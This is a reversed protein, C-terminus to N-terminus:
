SSRGTPLTHTAAQAALEARSSVGLKAFVHTLHVKVTGPAMFLRQAIAENRLGAAVLGAVELETPTLSAWGSAPRKRGGGRRAAYAVAQDLTLAEGREWAQAFRDDGLIERAQRTARDAARRHATFGPTLYRLRTRAGDAAALFIAADTFRERDTALVGLFGIGDAADMLDRCRHWQVTASRALREAEVLEGQQWAVFAETYTVTAQTIMQRRDRLAARAEALTAAATREDGAIAALCARSALTIPVFQTVGSQRGGDAARRLADVAAPTDGAAAALRAEAFPGLMEVLRIAGDRGAAWCLAVEAEAADLQGVTAFLRARWYRMITETFRDAQTNLLALAEDLGAETAPSIGAGTIPSVATVTLALALGEQGAATRALEAARQAHQQHEALDGTLLAANALMVHARSALAPDAQELLGSSDQLQARIGDPNGANWALGALLNRGWLELQPEGAQRARTIGDGALRATRPHDGLNYASWAAGLLVRAQVDSRVAAPLALAL